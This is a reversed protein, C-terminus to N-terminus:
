VRLRTCAVSLALCVLRALPGANASSRAARLPAAAAHLSTAMMRAVTRVNSLTCYHLLFPSALVGTSM